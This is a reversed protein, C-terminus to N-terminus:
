SIDKGKKEKSIRQFVSLAAIAGEAVATSIQNFRNSGDTIDGAAFVGEVNTAMDPGVKIRGDTAIDIGLDSALTSLPVGGIEIFVGDVELEKGNDLKIKEVKDSGIIETINANYEFSVKPDKELEEVRMPEARMHDKRYVIIVKRAYKSLLQAAMAAADSGGVVSVVKDKMFNCDCTACYSVGRGLLREAGPIDLKRRMTGMALIINKAKFTGKNTMVEFSNSDPHIIGEVEATLLPVDFSLAHEKFKKMLELGPGKFGPWNLIEHALNATGGPEKGIVLCDVKYRASYISSTLGAPGAGVIICDYLKDPIPDSM